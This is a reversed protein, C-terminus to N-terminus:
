RMKGLSPSVFFLLPVNMAPPEALLFPFRENYNSYSSHLRVLSQLPTENNEELDEDHLVNLCEAFPFLSLRPDLLSLRSVLSSLSLLKGNSVSTSSSSELLDVIDSM